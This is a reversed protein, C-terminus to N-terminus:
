GSAATCGSPERAPDCLRARGLMNIKINRQQRGAELSLTGFHAGLGTNAKCSRGASNYAIYLPPTNASFRSWIRLGGDVPGHRMLLTDGRGPRRDGDRDVFVQWGQRWDLGSPDAPTLLVIAGGAIAQSRALNLAGLLDAAASRLRYGEIALQLSPASFGLLLSAIAMVALLEILTFGALM